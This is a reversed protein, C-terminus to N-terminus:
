TDGGHEYALDGTGEFAISMEVAGDFSASRSISTVIASGSYYTGDTTGAPYFEFTITSGAQVSPDTNAAHGFSLDSADWYCDVSGSFAKFTTLIERSTDGMSTVDLTETTEELSFATVHAVTNAGFKVVGDVGKTEAM